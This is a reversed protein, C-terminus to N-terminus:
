YAGQGPCVSSDTGGGGRRKINLDRGGDRAYLRLARLMGM